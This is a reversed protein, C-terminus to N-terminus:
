VQVNITPDCGEDFNSTRKLVRGSVSKLMRIETAKNRIQNGEHQNDMTINHIAGNSMKENSINFNHAPNKQLRIQKSDQKHVNRNKNIAGDSGLDSNNKFERVAPIQLRVQKREQKNVVTESSIIENENSNNFSRDNNYLSNNTIIDINGNTSLKMNNTNTTQEHTLKM